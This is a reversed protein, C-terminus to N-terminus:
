SDHEVVNEGLGQRGKELGEKEEAKVSDTSLQMQANAAIDTDADADQVTQIVQPYMDADSLPLCGNNDDTDQDGECIDFSDLEILNGVVFDSSHQTEIDGDVNKGESSSEPENGSHLDSADSASSCEGGEEEDEEESNEVKHRAEKLLEVVKDKMAFTGGMDVCAFVDSNKETKALVSEPWLEILIKMVRIMGHRFSTNCAVHLPIWGRHDAVKVCDANTEVLHNFAVIGDPEKKCDSQNNTSEDTSEDDTDEDVDEDKSEEEDEGFSDYNRVMYHLPVRRLKDREMVSRPEMECLVNIVSAEALSRCAIHLPTRGFSKEKQMLGDPHISGLVQLFSAPPRLACAAHIPLAEGDFRGGYLREVPHWRRALVPKSELLETALSGDEKRILHHLQILLSKENRNPIQIFRTLFIRDLLNPHSNPTNAQGKTNDVSSPSANNLLIPDNNNSGSIGDSISKMMIARDEKSLLNTVDNDDDDKEEVNSNLEDMQDSFGQHSGRLFPRIIPLSLLGEGRRVRGNGSVNADNSNNVIPSQARHKSQTPMAYGINDFSGHEGNDISSNASSAGDMSPASYLVYEERDVENNANSSFSDNNTQRPRRRRGFGWSRRLAEDEQNSGSKINVNLNNNGTLKGRRRADDDGNSSILKRSIDRDSNLGLERNFWSGFNNADRSISFSNTTINSTTCGGQYQRYLLPIPRVTTEERDDEEDHVNNNIDYHQPQNKQDDSVETSSSDNSDDSSDDSSQRWYSVFEGGGEEEEERNNNNVDNMSSNFDWDDHMSVRGADGGSSSVSRDNDDITCYGNNRLRAHKYTYGGGSDYSNDFSIDNDDFRDSHAHQSPSSQKQLLFNSLFNNNNKRPRHTRKNNSTDSRRDDVCNNPSTEALPTFEEEGGGDLSSSSSSLSSM